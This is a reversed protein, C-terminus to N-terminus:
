RWISATGISGNSFVAAFPAAFRDGALHYVWIWSLARFGVELASTWNIGCQFPNQAFWDELQSEIEKIFKQQGSFLYAQALLILHQHRNIEWVSKHDGALAVNLYPIRRFYIPRTEVGNAYDRRWHIDPGTNLTIGLLPFRHQLVEEAIQLCGAAFPTNELRRAVHAPEPLAPFHAQSTELAAAPLHPRLAFFRINALEQRLRVRIESLSRL